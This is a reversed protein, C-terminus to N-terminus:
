KLYRVHIEDTAKQFVNHNAENDLTFHFNQHVKAPFLAGKNLFNFKGCLFM